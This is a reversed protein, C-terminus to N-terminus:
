QVEVWVFAGNSNMGAMDKVWYRFVETGHFGVKPTYSVTGDRNVSVTGGKDPAAMIMVSAPNIRNAPDTATDPDYDNALLNIVVPKYVAGALHAPAAATDKVAVPAHNSHSSVPTKVPYGRAAVRERVSASGNLEANLALETGVSDAPYSHALVEAAASAIGASLMRYASQADALGYGYSNDPGTVGLDHATQTLATEIEHISAHPFAGALLAMIGATHPAAYSSGSVTAYVPLGGSSLHAANIGVGPAVLKPYIGGDCASQGRSSFAAISLTSDVAGSSFGEPNNAPSRSTLPAPGDDGAAFVVAIGAAQLADVDPSFEMDCLGASGPLGWSANVVDPADATTEDGDPDLLWQFALHIDSYRAQGADNYLKAAIWKADPAVGIANGGTAGGVMISMTQTGHGSADYPASHEGHPDFWSNGGGRWKGGLEPHDPDVGTDMNAVVVGAGSYGMAWLDTAHVAHLNWGPSPKGDTAASAYRVPPAQLISNLRISEIGSHSALERIVDARATVAISNNVWLEIMHHAGNEQLFTKHAAQMAAATEKLAKVLSGNRYRRDKVDFLRHNVKGTLTVLVQLEENDPRAALEAALVPAIVAAQLSGCFSMLLVALAGGAGLRFQPVTEIVLRAWDARLRMITLM